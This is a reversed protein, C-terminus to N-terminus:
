EVYVSVDDIRFVTPNTNDSTADFAIRITQGIYDNLSVTFRSYNGASTAHTNNRTYLLKSIYSQNDEVWVSLVDYVNNATEQTTVNHWFSFEVNSADSPVDFWASTMSGGAGNKQYGGPDVGGAALYPPSRHYGSSSAGIWFDGTLTWGDALDDFDGNQLIEGPEFSSGVTIYVWDSDSRESPDNVVIMATYTGPTSVNAIYSTRTHCDTITWTYDFVDGRALGIACTLPDGDPDSVSWSFEVRNAGGDTFVEADFYDVRPASGTSPPVDVFITITQSARGGNEDLVILNASYTGATHYTHRVENNSQCNEITQSSGSGFSIGCTLRDGDADSADWRFRVDLPADGSSPTATFSSLVPDTNAGSNGVTFSLPFSSEGTLPNTIVATWRAPATTLNAFVRIESESQVSTRDSPIPHAGDPSYLTVESSAPFNGGIFTLWQRGDLPPVPSPSVSNIWPEGLPPEVASCGEEPITVTVSNSSRVTGGDSRAEVEYSYTGGGVVNATNMFSTGSVPEYYLQGNRYISYSTADSSPAWTLSVSPQGQYCTAEVSGISFSGPALASPRKLRLNVSHAQDGVLSFSYSMPLYGNQVVKLRYSGSPLETLGARGGSNTAMRRSEAGILEVTAGELPSGTQDDVVNVTMSAMGQAFEGPDGIPVILFTRFEFLTLYTADVECVVFPDGDLYGFAEYAETLTLNWIVSNTDLLTGSDMVVSAANLITKAGALEPHMLMTEMPETVQGILVDLGVSEWLTDLRGSLYGPVDALRVEHCGSEHKGIWEVLRISIESWSSWIRGLETAISGGVRQIDNWSPLSVDIKPWAATRLEGADDAPMLHTLPIITPVHQHEPDVIVAEASAGTLLLAGDLGWLQKGSAVDSLHLTVDVAAGEDLFRLAGNDDSRAYVVVLDPEEGAGVVVNATDFVGTHALSRASVVYTGPEGPATYTASDGNAVLSGASASWDVDSADVGTLEATFVEVDGPLMRVSSPSLSIAADAPTEDTGFVECGVLLLGLTFLAIFPFARRPM